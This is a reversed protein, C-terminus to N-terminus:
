NLDTAIGYVSNKIKESLDTIKNLSFKNIQQQCISELVKKNILLNLNHEFRHRNNVFFDQLKSIDQLVSLNKSIAQYCRDFPYYEQQYSHDILDDFVDFGLERMHDAIFYGGVWIPITGGYVAMLTKETIMTENEYYLPETVLSIYSPEYIAKKLLKEYVDANTKTIADLEIYNDSTLSQGDSLYVHQEQQKIYFIKDVISKDLNSITDHEEIWHSDKAWSQSYAYNTLDFYNILRSLILRHPRVKNLMFNFCKQKNSWDITLVSKYFETSQRATRGPFCAHRYNEFDKCSLFDDFVILHSQPDCASNDLLLKIAYPTNSNSYHHDIVWIVTPETLIENSYCYSPGFIEM